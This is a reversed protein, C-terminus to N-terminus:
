DEFANSLQRLFSPKATVISVEYREVDDTHTDIALTVRSEDGWDDGQRTYVRFEDHHRLFATEPSAPDGSTYIEREQWGRAELWNHFYAMVEEHTAWGQQGPYGTGVQRYLYLVGPSDAYELTSYQTEWWFYGTRNPQVPVSLVLYSPTNLWWGVALGVVLVLWFLDRLTLQPLKM